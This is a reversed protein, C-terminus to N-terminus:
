GQLVFGCQDGPVGALVVSIQGVMKQGLAIPDYAGAAIGL